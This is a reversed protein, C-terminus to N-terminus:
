QSLDVIGIDSVEGVVVLVNEVSTELYDSSPSIGVTYNGGPLGRILFAGTNDAFSSAVTDAGQIAFV